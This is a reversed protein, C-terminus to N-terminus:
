LVLYAMQQLISFAREVTDLSGPQLVIMGHNQSARAQNVNLCHPTLFTVFKGVFLEM